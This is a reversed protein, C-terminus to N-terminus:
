TATVTEHMHVTLLGDAVHAREAGFPPIRRDSTYLEGHQEVRENLGLKPSRSFSLVVARLWENFLRESSKEVPPDVSVVVPVDSYAAVFFLRYTREVSVTFKTGAVNAPKYPVDGVRTRKEDKLSLMAFRTLVEGDRAGNLSQGVAIEPLWDASIVADGAAAITAVMAARLDYDTPTVLEPM